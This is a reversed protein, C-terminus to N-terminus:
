QVWAFFASWAPLVVQNGTLEAGIFGHGECISLIGMKIPFIYNAKTSSLNFVCLMHFDNLGIRYHRVFALVREDVSLLEMDGKILPLVTKRWRLFRQYQVLVSQKNQCQMDVALRMHAAPLPLWSRKAPTFGGQGVSSSASWPIPTRCGDRGKFAPWMTIGYPDQLQDFELMAEPLGLEDGQYLCPTGRLSLQLAGFLKLAQPPAQMQDLKLNRAVSEPMDANECDSKSESKSEPKSELQCARWRTAVRVVDHNSIAWCAWGDAVREEFNRLIAHIYPASCSEGLLDFSYAAHLKDPGTTYSSMVGLADDAGIEGVTAVGPYRDLLTRIRRLFFLNEPQTKDYVHWQWAYPNASTFTGDVAAPRGKAPNDRLCKDHMYFNVTDLRFGDVGLELWFQLVDLMADQVERNHLNLDPQSRLFNHMYYQERATSWQWASGGFVSLWNTPPTGDMCADAWVYWDAKANTKDSRSELFWPHLEASHNLVQDIIVRLGLQHAYELLRSFDDLSGFIPDVNCYDSVDYGFDHMPSPYFPSLWIADVGLAVIYPLRQIIGNLDGVGNGSSDQYSRPYIQYIVAGRWWEPDIRNGPFQKSEHEQNRRRKQSVETHVM